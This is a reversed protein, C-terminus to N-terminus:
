FHKHMRDTCFPMVCNVFLAVKNDEVPVIAARRSADSEIRARESELWQMHTLERSSRVGTFIHEYKLIFTEHPDLLETLQLLGAAKAQDLTMM